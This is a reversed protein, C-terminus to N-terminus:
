EDFIEVPDWGYDKYYKLDLSNNRVYMQISKKREEERTIERNEWDMFQEYLGEYGKTFAKIDKAYYAGDGAKEVSVVEYGDETQLLHFCAPMEGGGVSELINGIQRYSESWFNGFVLYEDGAKVEKYIIFNPIWVEGDELEERIEELQYKCIAKVAMDTGTYVFDPLNQEKQSTEGTGAQGTQYGDMQIRITSFEETSKQYTYLIYSNDIITLFSVKEEGVADTWCKSKESYMVTDYTDYKSDNSFLHELEDRNCFENFTDVEKRGEAKWLQDYYRLSGEDDGIESPSLAMEEGKTIEYKYYRGYPNGNEENFIIFANDDRVVCTQKADGNFYMCDIKQIDITGFIEEKKFDYLLIGRLNGFVLLEDDLYMIDSAYTEIGNSGVKEAQDVIEQSSKSGGILKQIKSVLEGDTAANIGMSSAFLIVLAIAAVTVYKVRYTLKNKKNNGETNIKESVNKWIKETQSTAPNLKEFVNKFEKKDM